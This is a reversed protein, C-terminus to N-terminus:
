LDYLIIYPKFFIPLEKVMFSKNAKTPCVPSFRLLPNKGKLKYIIIM